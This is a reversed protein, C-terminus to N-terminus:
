DVLVRDLVAQFEQEVRTFKQQDVFDEALAAAHAQEFQELFTEAFLRLNSSTGRGTLLILVSTKGTFFSLNSNEFQLGKLDTGSTVITELSSKIASIIGGLLESQMPSATQYNHSFIPLGTKTLLIVAQIRNRTIVISMPDVFLALSWLFMGLSLLYLRAHRVLAYRTLFLTVVWAVLVAYAVLLLLYRPHFGGIKHNRLKTLVPYLSLFIFAVMLAGGIYSIAPAYSAEVSVGVSVIEMNDPDMILGVLVGFLLTIPYVLPFQGLRDYQAVVLSLIIIWLGVYLIINALQWLFAVDAAPGTSARWAFLSSVLLLGSFTAFGLHSWHRHRHFMVLMLPIPVAYTVLKWAYVLTTPDLAM